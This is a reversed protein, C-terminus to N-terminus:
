RPQAPEGKKVRDKASESSHASFSGGPQLAPRPVTRPLIEAISTPTKGDNLFAYTDRLIARRQRWQQQRLEEPSMKQMEAILQEVLAPTAREPHFREYSYGDFARPYPPEPEYVYGFAAEAAVLYPHLEAWFASAPTHQPDQALLDFIEAFLLFYASDPEGNLYTPSEGASGPLERVLQRAAFLVFARGVFSVRQASEPIHRAILRHHLEGIQRVLPWSPHQAPWPGPPAERYARDHARATLLKPLEQVARSRMQYEAADSSKLPADASADAGLKRWHRSLEELWQTERDFDLFLLRERGHPVGGASLLAAYSEFLESTQKWWPTAGERSGLDVMKALAPLPARRVIRLSLEEGPKWPRAGFDLEFADNARPSVIARDTPSSAFFAEAIRFPTRSSHFQLGVRRAPQALESRLAFLDTM